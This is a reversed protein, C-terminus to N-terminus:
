RRRSASNMGGGGLTSATLPALLAALREAWGASGEGDAVLDQRIEVVVGSLGADIAHTELTSGPPNRASYPQNDGVCLDGPAALGALLPRALRDDGEWLVGVHWPRAQGAMVPTFSHIGVLIPAVGHRAQLRRLEAAVARHWPRHLAEIRAWRAAFSLAQNGPIVVGDSVEPILTSCTESRNLDIVLRSYGGLLAPANLLRALHRTVEAAGIDYAIHTARAGVSVGLDGLKAPFAQAAHDCVLLLPRQGDVDVSRLPPPDGPGLLSFSQLVPSGHRHCMAPIPGRSRVRPGMRAFGPARLREGPIQPSGQHISMFARHYLASEFASEASYSPSM